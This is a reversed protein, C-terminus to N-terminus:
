RYRRDLFIEVGNESQDNGNSNLYAHKLNQGSRRHARKSKKNNRYSNDEAYQLEYELDDEDFNFKAM